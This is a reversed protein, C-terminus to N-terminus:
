EDVPVMDPPLVGSDELPVDEDVEIEGTGGKIEEVEDTVKGHHTHHLKGGVVVNNESNTSPNGQQYAKLAATSAAIVSHVDHFLLGYM